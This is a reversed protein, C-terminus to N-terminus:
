EFSSVVLASPSSPELLPAITKRLFYSTQPPPQRCGLIISAGSSAFQLAAERGIGNNGGTIVIWKGCCEADPLTIHSGELGRAGQWLRWLPSATPLSSTQTDAMKYRQVTIYTSYGLRFVLSHLVIFNSYLIYTETATCTALLGPLEQSQFGRSGPETCTRGSYVIMFTHKISLVCCALSARKIFSLSSMGYGPDPFAPEPHVLPTLCRMNCRPRHPSADKYHSMVVISHGQGWSGRNRSSYVLSNQASFEVRSGM